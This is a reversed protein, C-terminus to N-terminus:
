SQIRKVSARTNKLTVREPARRQSRRLTLVLTRTGLLVCLAGGWGAGRWDNEPELPTFPDEREGLAVKM